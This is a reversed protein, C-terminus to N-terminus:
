CVKGSNLERLACIISCFKAKYSPTLGGFCHFLEEEIDTSLQKVKVETQTMRMDLVRESEALMTEAMTKRVKIRFFDLSGHGIGSTSTLAPTLLTQQTNVANNTTNADNLSCDTEELVDKVMYLM